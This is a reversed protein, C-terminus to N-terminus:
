AASSHALGILAMRIAKDLDDDTFRPQLRLRAAVRELFVSRKEPDLGSAALMVVALQDDDLALV